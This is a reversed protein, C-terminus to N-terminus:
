KRQGKREEISTIFYFNITCFFLSLIAAEKVVKGSRREEGKQKTKMKKRDMENREATGSSNQICFIREDCEM